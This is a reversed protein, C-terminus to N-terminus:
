IYNLHTQRTAEDIYNIKAHSLVNDNDKTVNDNKKKAELADFDVRYRIPMKSKCYITKYITYM